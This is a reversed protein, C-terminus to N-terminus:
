QQAADDVAIADSDPAASGDEKADLADALSDGEQPQTSTDGLSLHTVSETLSEEDGESEDTYESDSETPPYDMRGDYEVPGGGTALWEEQTAIM